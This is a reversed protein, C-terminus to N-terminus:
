LYTSIQRLTVGVGVAVHEFLFDLACELACELACLLLVLGWRQATRAALGPGLPYARRRM